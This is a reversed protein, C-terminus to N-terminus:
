KPLKMGLQELDREYNHWRDPYSENSKVRYYEYDEKPIQHFYDVKYSKALQNEVSNIKKEILSLIKIYRKVQKPHRYECSSEYDWYCENHITNLRVLLDFKEKRNKTM